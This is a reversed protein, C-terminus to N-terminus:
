QSALRTAQPIVREAQKNRAITTLYVSDWALQTKQGRVTRNQLTTVLGRMSTALLKRGGNLAQGAMEPFPANSVIAAIQEVGFPPTVAFHFGYGPAPIPLAEGARLRDQRHYANPFIQIINNDADIYYLRLYSPQSVRVYVLIKEGEYYSAGGGRDTWVQVHMQEATQAGLTELAATNEKVMQANTVQAPYSTPVLAQPVLTEASALPKATAADLLKLRVSVGRSTVVHDGHLVMDAGSAEALRNPNKPNGVVSLGRLQQRPVVRHQKSVSLQTDLLTALYRSFPTEYGQQKDVINGVVIRDGVKAPASRTLASTLQTLVGDVQQVLAHQDTQGPLPASPPALGASGPKDPVSIRGRMITKMRSNLSNALDNLQKAVGRQRATSTEAAGETQDSFEQFTSGGLTDTSEFSEGGGLTDTSGFSESGGLTDTSGFSESGGLTDTSGFSESGGSTDTSGFSEGGGSTDTSGFSEGGESKESSPLPRTAFPDFQFAVIDQRRRAFQSSPRQKIIGAVKRLDYQLAMLKREEAAFEQRTLVCNNYNICLNRRYLMLEGTLTDLQILTHVPLNVQAGVSQFVKLGASYDRKYQEFLTQCNLANHPGDPCQM